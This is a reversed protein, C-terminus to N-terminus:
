LSLIIERLYRWQNKAFERTIHVIKYSKERVIDRVYQQEFWSSNTQSNPQTPVPPRSGPLFPAPHPLFSPPFRSDLPPPFRSFDLFIECCKTINQLLFPVFLLDLVVVSLPPFRFYFTRSAPTSSVPLPLLLYPFCSYFTRSAPTSSVPLPLYTCFGRGWGSNATTLSKTKM